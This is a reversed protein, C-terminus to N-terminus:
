KTTGVVYNVIYYVLHGVIKPDQDHKLISHLIPVVYYVLFWPHSDMENEHPDLDEIKLFNSGSEPSCFICIWIRVGSQIDELKWRRVSFRSVHYESVVNM